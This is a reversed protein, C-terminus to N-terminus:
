MNYCIKVYKVDVKSDVNKVSECKDCKMDKCKEKCSVFINIWM